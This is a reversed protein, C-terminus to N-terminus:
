KILICNSVEPIIQISDNWLGKGGSKRIKIAVNGVEFIHFRISNDLEILASDKSIQTIKM